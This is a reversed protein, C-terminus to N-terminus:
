LTPSIGSCVRSAAVAKELTKQDWADGLEEVGLTKPIGCFKTCRESGLPGKRVLFVVAIAFITFNSYATTNKSRGGSKSRRPGKESLSFTQLEWSFHHGCLTRRSLLDCPALLFVVRLLYKSRM